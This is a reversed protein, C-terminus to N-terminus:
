SQPICQQFVSVFKCRSDYLALLNKVQDPSVMSDQVQEPDRILDLHHLTSLMWRKKEMEVEEHLATNPTTKWGEKLRSLVIDPGAAAM